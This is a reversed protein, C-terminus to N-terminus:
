EKCEATEESEEGIGDFSPTRSRNPVFTGNFNELQSQLAMLADQLNHTSRRRTSRRISMRTNMRLGEPSVPSLPLDAVDEMINTLLYKDRPQLREGLVFTEILGKGKM